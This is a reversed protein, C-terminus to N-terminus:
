FALNKTLWSSISNASITVTFLGQGSKTMNLNDPGTPCVTEKIKFKFLVSFWQNHLKVAHKIM